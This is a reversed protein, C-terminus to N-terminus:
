NYRIQIIYKNKMNFKFTIRNEKLKIKLVAGWKYTKKGVKGNRGAM